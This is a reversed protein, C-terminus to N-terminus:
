LLIQSSFIQFIAPLKGKPKALTITYAIQSKRSNHISNQSSEQEKPNMEDLDMMQRQTQIKQFEPPPKLGM